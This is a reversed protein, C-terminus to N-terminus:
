GNPPHNDATVVQFWNFHDEECATAAAALPPPPEGGSSTFDGERRAGSRTTVIDGVHVPPQGCNVPVSLGQAVSNCWVAIAFSLAFALTRQQTHGLVRCAKKRIM